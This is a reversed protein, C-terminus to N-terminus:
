TRPGRSTGTRNRSQSLPCANHAARWTSSGNNRWTIALGGGFGTLSGDSGVVRHCPLVIPIPNRGNAGGVARTAAPRGIVEAQHAYSTTEGYPITALARWAEREFNTGELHLPLEFTAREGSFYEGLQDATTILVPDDPAEPIEDSTLGMSDLDQNAFLIQTLGKDDALLTLTGIPSEITLRRLSMRTGTDGGSRQLDPRTLSM